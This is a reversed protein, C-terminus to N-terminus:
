ALIRVLVRRNQARGEKTKNDGVPKAEGYSIVNMKHLPVNHAEYLYRKVAEARELGVRENINESGRNDTHGEIEFYYNRPDSTVESILKDLETKAEDPLDSKGFDFNGGKGEEMKLVVEFILKRNAADVADVKADVKTAATRADDASRQAATTKEEVRGVKQDVEGIKQANERTRQQTEEVATSLSGVKQNVDAVQTNVYKKTACAASSGLALTVVGIGLLVNKM